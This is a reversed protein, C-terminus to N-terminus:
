NGPSYSSNQSPPYDSRSSSNSNYTPRYNTQTRTNRSSNAAPRTTTPRTTTPRTTGPRTTTTGPRTAAGPRTTTSPRTTTGPRTTTPRTTTAGPRTTNPRTMNGSQGSGPRVTTPRAVPRTTTGQGSGPRTMNNNNNDSGPRITSGSSPRVSTGPRSGPRTGGGPNVTNGTNNNFNPRSSPRTPRNSSPPGWNPYHGHHWDHHNWHPHGWGPYYGGGYWPRNWSNGWGYWPNYWPDYWGSNWGFGFSLGPGGVSLGMNFGSNFSSNFAWSDFRPNDWVETWIYKPYTGFLLSSYLNINTYSPFWWYRGESTYVNWDPDFSLNMAIEQGNGNFYAFGEPYINIIRQIENLDGENGKYGGIWYGTNEYLTVNEQDDNALIEQAQNTLDSLNVQDLQGTRSNIVKSQNKSFSGSAMSNGSSRATASSLDQSDSDQADGLDQGTISEVEQVVLAKKGPVYYIDDEVTSSLNRTTSCSSAVLALAAVYLLSKM